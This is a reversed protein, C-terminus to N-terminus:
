YAASSLWSEARDRLQFLAIQSQFVGLPQGQM